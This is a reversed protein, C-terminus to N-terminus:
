TKVKMKLCDRETTNTPICLQIESFKMNMASRQLVKRKYRNESREEPRMAASPRHEEDRELIM